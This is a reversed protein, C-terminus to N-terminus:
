SFDVKFILSLEKSGTSQVEDITLNMPTGLTISDAPASDYAADAILQELYLRSSREFQEDPTTLSSKRTRSGYQQALQLSMRTAKEDALAPYTASPM